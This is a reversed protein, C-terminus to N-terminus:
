RDWPAAYTPDGVFRDTEAEIRTAAGVDLDLAFADGDINAVGRRGGSTDYTV